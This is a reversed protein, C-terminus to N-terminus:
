TRKGEGKPLKPLSTGGESSSETSSDQPESSNDGDSNYSREQYTEKVPFRVLNAHIHELLTDMDCCFKTDEIYTVKLNALGVAANRLDTVLLNFYVADKELNSREYTVLLEFARSITEQVFGLANGRNDQYLFTRSLSTGLGGPQVYMHRTNIKEGKKLKGIFKLKSTIEQKTDMRNTNHSSSDKLAKLTFSPIQSYM